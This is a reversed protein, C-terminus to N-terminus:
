FALKLLGMKELGGWPVYNSCEVFMYTISPTRDRSIDTYLGKGTCLCIKLM